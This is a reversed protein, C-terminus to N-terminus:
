RTSSTPGASSPTPPPSPPSARAPPPSPSTTTALPFHDTHSVHRIYPVVEQEIYLSYLNQRRAKEPIPLERDMWAQNNISNISFVRVRGDAIAGEISGILGFRENELY